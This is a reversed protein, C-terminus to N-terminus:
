NHLFQLDALPFWDLLTQYDKPSHERLPGLFRMDIGDFSRGFWQYDIPLKIRHRDICDM